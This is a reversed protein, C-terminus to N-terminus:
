KQARSVLATMSEWFYGNQHALVFIIWFSDISAVKDYFGGIVVPSIACALILSNKNLANIQNKGEQLAHKIFISSLIGSISGISLAACKEIGNSIARDIELFGMPGSTKSLMYITHITLGIICTLALCFIIYLYTLKGAAKNM